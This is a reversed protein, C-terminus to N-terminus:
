RCGCEVVVMDKYAYRYTLVGNNDVYLISISDLNTPVCCSRAARSPAVSHLLAQVIAHKTPNLHEAVPYFCRGQCQYADYGSPQVIWVDYKIEAFDIYLPRKKCTNRIRKMKKMQARRNSYDDDWLKNTEEEYDDELSRKNRRVNNDTNSGNLLEKDKPQHNEDKVSAYSLLLVPYDHEIDEEVPTLSLKLNSSPSPIFATVTIVIKLFKDKSKAQLIENVPDTVDFSMWTNNVHYIQTEQYHLHKSLTDDYISLKLIRKVGKENNANFDLLTLIKLEAGIFTEDENQTPLEFILLHNDSLQELVENTPFPGAHTPILSRVVDPKENPKRGSKNKEYLELMFKPVHVTKKNKFVGVGKGNQASVNANSKLDTVVRKADIINVEISTATNSTSNQKLLFFCYLWLCLIIATIVILSVHMVIIEHVCKLDM